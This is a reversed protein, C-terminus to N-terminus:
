PLGVTNRHSMIAITAVLLLNAPALLWLTATSLWVVQFGKANGYDSENMLFVVVPSVVGIALFISLPILVILGTFSELFFSVAVSLGMIVASHFLPTLIELLPLKLAKKLKLGIIISAMVFLFSSFYYKTDYLVVLPIALAMPIANLVLVLLVQSLRVVGSKFHM